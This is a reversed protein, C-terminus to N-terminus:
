FYFLNFQFSNFGTPLFFRCLLVFIFVIKVHVIFDCYVNCNVSTGVCKVDWLQSIDCYTNWMGCFSLHSDWLSIVRLQKWGLARCLFLYSHTRSIQEYLKELCIQTDVHPLLNLGEFLFFFYLSDLISISHLLFHCVLVQLAGFSCSM